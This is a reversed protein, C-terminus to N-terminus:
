GAKNSCARQDRHWLKSFCFWKGIGTKNTPTLACPGVHGGCHQGLSKPTDRFSRSPGSLHACWMSTDQEAWTFMYDATIGYHATETRRNKHTQKETQGDTQAQTYVYPWSQHVALGLVRPLHIHTLLSSRAQTHCLNQSYAQSDTKRRLPDPSHNWAKSCFSHNPLLPLSLQTDTAHSATHSYLIFARRHSSKGRSWACM